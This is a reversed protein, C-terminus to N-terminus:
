TKKFEEMLNRFESSSRIPDLDPDVKLNAVDKYGHTKAQRLAAVALETYRRQQERDADTVTGEKKGHTVAASCLAYCCGVQFLVSADKPRRKQLEAALEAAQKHQGCRGQVIMLNIRNSDDKPDTRHVRERVTLCKGYYLDAATKDNLRLCATALRYYNQALIRHVVLRNDIQALQENPGLSDPESRRRWRGAAAIIAARKAGSRSRV